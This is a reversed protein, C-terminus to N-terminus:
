SLKKSTESKYWLKTDDDHTARVMATTVSAPVVVSIVNAQATALVVSTPIAQLITMARATADTANEMDEVGDAVV